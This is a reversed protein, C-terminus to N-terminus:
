TSPAGREVAGPQVAAGNTAAPEDGSGNSAARGKAAGNQLAEVPGLAADMLAVILPDKLFAPLRAFALQLRIDDGPAYRARPFRAELAHRIAAVCLDPSPAIRSILQMAREIVPLARAYRQAVPAELRAYDLYERPTFKKWIATAFSGPEVLAVRVGFGRQEVRLSEVLARVAHKSAAYVGNFPWAVQGSISGVVVIRGRAARVFPLLAQTLAVVGFVNVEFQRRWADVTLAEVPGHLVIGANNVLADLRGGTREAILQRAASVQEPDTVDIVVPESRPSLRVRMREADARSRVGAFVRWGREDLSRALALGIGTSTGTILVSKQHQKL